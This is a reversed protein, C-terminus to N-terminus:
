CAWAFVSILPPRLIDTDLDNTKANANFLHISLAELRSDLRIELASHRASSEKIHLKM